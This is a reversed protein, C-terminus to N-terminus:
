GHNDENDRGHAPPHHGSDLRTSKVAADSDNTWQVGRVVVSALLAALAIVAAVQAPWGFVGANSMPFRGIDVAAAVGAALYATAALYCLWRGTRVFWALLLLGPLVLALAGGVIVMVVLSAGVAVVTPVDARPGRARADNERRAPWLALGVLLLVLASGVILGTRYLGDPSYTLTVVGGSGAPLVWAQEWGDIRASQLSRNDLVATWGANFNQRLVLYSSGGGGVVVSRNDPGWNTISVSRKSTAPAYAPMASPVLAVANVKLYGGVNGKFVHVGPSLAVSSDAGCAVFEMERYGGVDSDTGSVQTELNMGDITIVPGQGCPLDFPQKTLARLGLLEVASALDAGPRATVLGRVTVNEATPTRFIREMRPETDEGGLAMGFSHGPAPSTFVYVPQRAGKRAFRALEDSPVAEAKEITVGPITLERIGAGVPYPGPHHPPSAKAFTIKFWRTPGKPVRVFQDAALPNVADRVTGRATAIAIQTVRPSQPSVNLQIALLPVSVSHRLDVRIWQGVSNNSANAIWATDLDGDTAAAPQDEPAQVLSTSGFSSASVNAAGIFSAVTQHVSGSVITWGNPPKGTVPSVERRTLVYTANGWISGYQVDTRPTTDSVVWTQGPANKGGDGALIVGRNGPDLGLQDLALLAQAGGSVVLSNERSAISIPSVQRRVAYVEIAPLLGGLSGYEKRRPGFVAVRSLGPSDSLTEHVQPPSPAGVEPGLDNREVLYRVGSQALFTALGANPVGSELVQDVADLMEINGVSSDPILGRVGWNTSSLWQMPEDLPSGWTYNGGSSGPVLLSTTRGAHNNLWTATSQWYSPVTTFSGPPFFSDTIFPVAAGVIAVVALPIVLARTRMVSGFLSKTRGRRPAALAHVAHAIGLALPLNIIPQFKWVNRFLALPGNLAAGVPGSFPGGFQGPYGASVLAVGLAVSAVLWIREKMQKHALGYLGLAGLVGGAVIMLPSTVAELGSKISTPSLQDFAVWYSNGRLTDVLSTVATTTGSLETFPLLNFGYRGELLLSGGWWACALFVAPIWWALMQRRRKGPTRTILYLFPLPLIAVVAAANTGGMLLIAVGSRCAALRTSGRRTGQVLPIITWPLLAFALIYASVAGLLTIPAMFTYALAAIVRSGPSGIRLAEALRVVGWFAAILLVAVWLRQIVWTPLGLVHGIAFFPGMPLLYGYAQYAVGGFAQEPSWLHLAHSLFTLPTIAIDLKTDGVIRGPAQLFCLGVIGTSIAVLFRRPLEIAEDPKKTLLEQEPLLTATM